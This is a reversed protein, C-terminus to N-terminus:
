NNNRFILDQFTPMRVKGINASYIITKGDVGATVIINNDLHCDISTIASTHGM